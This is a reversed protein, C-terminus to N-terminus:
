DSSHLEANTMDFSITRQAGSRAPVLPVSRSAITNDIPYYVYVNSAVPEGLNAQQWRVLYM